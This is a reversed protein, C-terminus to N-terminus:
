VKNIHDEPSLVNKIAYIILGSRGKVKLKRTLRKRYDDITRPSVFMIESIKQYSLEKCLLKLFQKEKDNLTPTDVAGLLARNQIGSVLKQSLHEPIYAGKEYLTEIAFKLEDPESNKTLYGKAGAQIMKVITSEDQYMTLALIKVQPYHKHLWSATEFGNGRSMGIDLIMIDPMKSTKMATQVEEGNNAEFVCEFTGYTQLLRILGKRLMSHDDAIAFQIKRLKIM